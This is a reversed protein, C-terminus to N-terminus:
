KFLIDMDVDGNIGDIRGDSCTQWMYFKGKYDTMKNTYHALWIPYNDKIRDEWVNELYFKSGYLMVKYNSNNKITDAFAIFTDNLDTLSIEYRRFKSWNEWDFVIPYDLEEGNLTNLVWNAADIGSEVSTATTYLYVGVKLGAAKANQINQLYKSDISIEQEPSNSVGIRMMVFEAGANKVLNYDIDGQFKSIDIGIETNDNKYKEILTSIPIMESVINSKKVEPYAEVIKLTLNKENKNGADDKIVYKVKYDGVVSIDYDGEIECTPVKSYNDAFSISDCPNSDENILRYITSPASLFIPKINDVVNYKIDYTKTKDNNNKYHVKVHQEGVTKTDLKIDKNEIELNTDIVDKLEVDSNVVVDMTDIYSGEPLKEKKECGTLSLLCLLLLLYKKM